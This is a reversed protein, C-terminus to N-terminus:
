PDAQIFSLGKSANQVETYSTNGITVSLFSVQTESNMSSHKMTDLVSITFLISWEIATYKVPMVILVDFWTM